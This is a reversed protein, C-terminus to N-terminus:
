HISNCPRSIKNGVGFILVDADPKYTLYDRYQRKWDFVFVCKGKKMLEDIIEFFANSKGTGTIGFLGIHRLFEKERLGFKCAEKDDYIITGLEYEGAALKPDPPPLLIKEKSLISDINKQYLLLIAQEIRKKRAPDYKFRWKFYLQDIQRGFLPKLKQAIQEIDIAPARHRDFMQFKFIM